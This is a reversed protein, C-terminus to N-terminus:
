LGTGKACSLLCFSLNVQKGKLEPLTLHSLATQRRIQLYVSYGSCWQTGSLHVLRNIVRTAKHM